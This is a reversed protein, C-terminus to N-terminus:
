LRQWGSDIPFETNLYITWLAGSEARAFVRVVGGDFAATPHSILRDGDPHGLEAIHWDGPADTDGQRGTWHLHGNLGLAFVYLRGDGSTVVSARSAWHGGRPEWKGHWGSDETWWRHLLGRDFSAIFLDIRKRGFVYHGLAGMMQLNLSAVRSPSSTLYSAIDSVDAMSYHSRETLGI